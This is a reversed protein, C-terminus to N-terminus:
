IRATLARLEASQLCPPFSVSLLPPDISKNWVALVLAACAVVAQRGGGGRGARGKKGIVLSCECKWKNNCAVCTVFTTMPEDASRTQLQQLM